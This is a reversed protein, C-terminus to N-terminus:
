VVLGTRLILEVEVCPRLLVSLGGVFGFPSLDVKKKNM